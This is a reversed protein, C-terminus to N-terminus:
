SVEDESDSEDEDEEDSGMFFKLAAVLIQIVIFM